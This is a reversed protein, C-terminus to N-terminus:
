DLPADWPGDPARTPAGDTDLPLRERAREVGERVNQGVGNLHAGALLPNVSSPEAHAYVDTTGDPGPFLMLHLQKRALPGDRYVWSAHEPAGERTKLRAFPNRVFGATWLRDEATALSEPLSGAYEGETIPRPGLRDDFRRGLAQSAARRLPEWWTAAPGRNWRFPLGYTQALGVAAGLRTLSSPLADVM